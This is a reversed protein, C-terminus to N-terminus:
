ASALNYNVVRDVEKLLCEKIDAKLSIIEAVEVNINKYVFFVNFINYVSTFFATLV